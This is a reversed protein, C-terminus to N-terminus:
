KGIGISRRIVPGSEMICNFFGSMIANQAGSYCFLGTERFLPYAGM